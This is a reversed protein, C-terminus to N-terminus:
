VELMMEYSSLALGFCDLTFPEDGITIPLDQCCGPNHVREGNAMTVRLGAQGGFKLGICEATDLDMFNHTSGSDVLATIRTDNIIVYLQMTRGAQPRIGTLAHISIV